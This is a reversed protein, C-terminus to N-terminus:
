LLTGVINVTAVHKGLVTCSPTIRTVLTDPTLATVRDGSPLFVGDPQYITIQNQDYTIAIEAKSPYTSKIEIPLDLSIKDGVACEYTLERPVTVELQNPANLQSLSSSKVNLVMCWLTQRDPSFQISYPNPYDFSGTTDEVWHIDGLQYFFGDARNKVNIAANAITNNRDWSCTQQISKNSNYPLTTVYYSGWYTQFDSKIIKENFESAVASVPGILVLLLCLLYNM